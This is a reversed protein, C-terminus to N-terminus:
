RLSSFGGNLRVHLLEVQSELNRVRRPSHVGSSLILDLEARLLELKQQLNLVLHGEAFAYHAISPYEQHYFNLLWKLCCLEEFTCYDYLVDGFRYASSIELAYSRVVLPLTGREQHVLMKFLCVVPDKFVGRSTLRFACFVPRDTIETKSVTDIYHREDFWRFLASERLVADAAFDDGGIYITTGSPVDYKLAISAANYDSNDDYTGPEGTERGVAKPGIIDSHSNLKWWVYLEQLEDPVSVTEAIHCWLRVSAGKQTSDFCEYDNTTAPGDRWHAAAHAHLDETTTGCHIFIEAPRTRAKLKRMYRNVVGLICLIETHCVALTQGAKVPKLFAEMKAKLQGKLFHNLLGLPRDPDARPANVRLAAVPKSFLLRQENETICDLFLEEDWPASQLNMLQSYREFLVSGLLESRASHFEATNEAPTGRHLRKKITAAMMVPDQPKQRQFYLGTTPQRLEVDLLAESLGDRGRLELDERDLIAVQELVERQFDSDPGPLHTRPFDESDPLPPATLAPKLFEPVPISRLLTKLQEPAREWAQTYQGSARRVLAREAAIAAFQVPDPAAITLRGLRHAFRDQHPVPESRGLVASFYPHARMPELTAARIVPVIVLTRQARSFASYLDEECVNDLMVQTVRLQVEPWQQGQAGSITYTEYGLRSFTLQENDTAVILPQAHSFSTRVVVRGQHPSTTPLGLRTAIVQPSRHTHNLYIGGFTALWDIESDLANLTSESSVSHHRCQAPDGAAIVHTIQPNVALLLSVYGPVSLSVEELILVTGSVVFIKEWTSVQYGNTGLDLEKSLAARFTARPCSLKWAGKGLVDQRSKLYALLPATKGSGAAGFINMLRFSRGRSQQSDVIADLRQTFGKVFNKGEQRLMTGEIGNKLHSVLLKARSRDSCATTWTGAVAGLEPSRFETLKAIFDATLPSSRVRAPLKAPQRVTRRLPQWHPVDNLTTLELRVPRGTRVGVIRPVGKPVGALSINLGLACGALHFFREDLGPAPLLDFTSSDGAVPSIASWIAAESLDTAAALAQLGCTVPPSDAIAGPSVLLNPHFASNVVSAALGFLLHAFVPLQGSARPLAAAPPCLHCPASGPPAASERFHGHGSRCEVWSWGMAAFPSHLKHADCNCGAHALAVARADNAIPDSDNDIVQEGPLSQADMEFVSGTAISQPKVRPVDRSADGDVLGPPAAWPRAVAPSDPELSLGDDSSAASSSLDSGIVFAPDLSPLKVEPALAAASKAAAALVSPPRSSPAAIRPQHASRWNMATQAATDFRALAAESLGSCHSPLSSESPPPPPTRHTRKGLSKSSPATIMPDAQRFDPRSAHFMDPSATATQTAPFNYSVVNDLVHDLLYQISADKWSLYFEAAKRGCRLLLWAASLTPFLAALAAHGAAVLLEHSDEATALSYGATWVHAATRLWGPCLHTFVQAALELVLSLTSEKRARRLHSILPALVAAALPAEAIPAFPSLLGPATAADVAMRMMEWDSDRLHSFRALSMQARVKSVTDGAERKKLNRKYWFLKSFAERPVLPLGSVCNSKGTLAIWPRPIEILDPTTVHFYAPRVAPSDLSTCILVQGLTQELPESYYRVVDSGMSVFRDGPHLWEHASLPHLYHAGEHGEPIYKLKGGPLYQLEYMAPWNSRHGKSSEPPIIAGMYISRVSPYKLYLFAVDAASFYQGANYVLIQTCATADPLEAYDYRGRDKMRHHAAGQELFHPRQQVLAHFKAEKIYLVLTPARPMQAPYVKGYLHHELHRHAGHGHPETLQLPLPVGHDTLLARASESVQFRPLAATDALASLVPEVLSQRVADSHLTGDLLKVSELLNSGIRPGSRADSFHLGFGSRWSTLASRFYADAYDPGFASALYAFMDEELPYPGLESAATSRHALPIFVLYCYGAPPAIPSADFFFDQHNPTFADLASILLPSLVKRASAGVLDFLLFLSAIALVLVQPEFLLAYAPTTFAFVPLSPCERAALAFASNYAPTSMM